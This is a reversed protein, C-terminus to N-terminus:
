RHGLNKMLAEVILNLEGSKHECLLREKNLISETSLTEKFVDELSDACSFFRKLITSDVLM